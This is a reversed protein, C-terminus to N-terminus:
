TKVRPTPLINFVSSRATRTANGNVGDQGFSSASDPCSLVASDPRNSRLDFTNELVVEKSAARTHWLCDGM